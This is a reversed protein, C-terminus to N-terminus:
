VNVHKLFPPEEEVVPPNPMETYANSQAYFGVEEERM